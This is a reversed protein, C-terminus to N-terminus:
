RHPADDSVELATLELERGSLIEPMPEDCVPCRFPQGNEIHREAACGACFAVVPVDEIELRAGEIASGRAASDFCFSLAQGVVGSLPGIRVYVREVRVDGLAAAKECAVDVLRLAISLEHM